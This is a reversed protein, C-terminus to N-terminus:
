CQVVIAVVNTKSRDGPSPERTFHIIRPVRKITLRDGRVQTWHGCVENEYCTMSTFNWYNREEAWFKTDEEPRFGTYSYMANQGASNGDCSFCDVIM